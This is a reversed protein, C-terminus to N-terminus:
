GSHGVPREPDRASQFATACPVEDKRTGRSLTPLSQLNSENRRRGRERRATPLCAVCARECVLRPPCTEGNACLRPCPGVSGVPGSAFESSSGKVCFLDVPRGDCGCRGGPDFCNAGKSEVVCSGREECGKAATFGCRQGSPCDSNSKCSVRSRTSSQDTAGAPLVGILGNGYMTLLLGFVLASRGLKPRHLAM